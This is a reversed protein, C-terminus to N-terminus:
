AREREKRQELLTKPTEKIYYTFTAGFPPNDAKFYSSGLSGFTGSRKIFMLADKVSFLKYNEKELTQENIDRLPAYNDLIYFGRGFTAAALDNERKQIDLDRVAQTPLDGKIQIWNKGGNLTFFVGYETGIFLMDPKIHDQVISYVVQPEKLDGAINKWSKGRDNSILIYPKFDARKHNDFTAYVTNADHLSAYLCSVYTMEPIGPFSEIKRWSEGGNETVQILGDDTGAYLLGEVFPSESLSVINGYFSTSANKAVADVSWVKDMIPLKNRDVQRTLDDSIVKWTNGRDDSRFVKNAAAYLRNAHPSIILPTDWNWRYPDEDKGEQPKISLLEGSQMDYRTLGGYQWQCYIINPNEPDTLAEYGDGGVLPIYDANVIGEENITQSPVIMSNNDQTGGMVRYFPEHNDVSVRYFQTIPLNDKFHFTQAGDFTEYIGGDGGILFHNANNPNIWFAHDDVHRGKTSIRTFTKGGDTTISSFTDLLYVKNVDVPDCFTESYYQASVNKYDSMKEWSAGRNTTRYFGSNDYDAEIIAYVYDPNVPSIALGIRGVDGSPLDSKLKNWTKGADTSKYIASEPGGNLLTWVHRRRQYSAAYLVDPNRPDM